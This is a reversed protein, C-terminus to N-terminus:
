IQVPAVMMDAQRAKAMLSPRPQIKHPDQLGTTASFVKVYEGGLEQALASWEPECAFINLQAWCPGSFIMMLIIFYKKLNM